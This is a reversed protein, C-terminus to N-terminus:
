MLNFISCAAKCPSRGLHKMIAKINARALERKILRGVTDVNAAQASAAAQVTNQTSLSLADPASAARGAVGSPPAVGGSAWAMAMTIPELSFVFAVFLTASVGTFV